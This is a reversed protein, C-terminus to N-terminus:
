TEDHCAEMFTKPPQIEIRPYGLKENVDNYGARRDVIHGFNWSVIADARALTAMAIHRCDDLSSEGVVNEAIYQLALRNSETTSLVQEMQSELMASFHDRVRQPARAVENKLVDSVIIIIEGNRVATWFQKTDKSFEKAPAGYVVSTDVYVRKIKRSVTDEM